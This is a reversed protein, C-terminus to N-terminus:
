SLSKVRGEVMMVPSSRGDYAILSIRPDLGRTVHKNCL